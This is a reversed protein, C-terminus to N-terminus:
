TWFLSWLDNVDTAAYGNVFYWILICLLFIRVAHVINWYTPHRGLKGRIIWTGMSKGKKSNCPACAAVLNKASNVNPIGRRKLRKQLRLSHKVQWVPYIHDVTLKDRRLLRGCYACYYRGAIHPKYTKFFERRYNTDRQGYGGDIEISLGRDQCYRELSDIDKSRIEGKYSSGSKKLGRNNLESRDYLTYHIGNDTVIVKHKGMARLTQHRQYVHM